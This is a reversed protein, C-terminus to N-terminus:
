VPAGPHGKRARIQAMIKRHYVSADSQAPYSASIKAYIRDRERSGTRKARAAKLLAAYKRNLTGYHDTLLVYALIQPEIGPRLLGELQLYSCIYWWLSKQSKSLFRPAEFETLDDDPNPVPFDLIPNQPSTM